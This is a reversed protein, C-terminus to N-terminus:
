GRTNYPRDAAQDTYSFGKEYALEQIKGIDHLMAGTLLLDVDLYPYLPAICHALRTVNATHEILGGIYDHHISKAAPAAKFATTIEDRSFIIELLKESAPKVIERCISLFEEFLEDPNIKAAPLM